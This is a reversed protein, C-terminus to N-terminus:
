RRARTRRFEGALEALEAFEPRTLIAEESFHDVRLRVDTLCTTLGACMVQEALERSACWVPILITM